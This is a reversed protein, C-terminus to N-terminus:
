ISTAPEAVGFSISKYGSKKLIEAFFDLNGLVSEHNNAMIGGIFILSGIHRM